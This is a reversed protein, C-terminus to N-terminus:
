EHFLPFIVRLRGLSPNSWNISNTQKIILKKMKDIKKFLNLLIFLIKVKCLFAICSPHMIIWLNNLPTIQDSLILRAMQATVYLSTQKNKTCPLTLRTPRITNLSPCVVLFHLLPWVPFLEWRCRSGLRLTHINPAVYRSNNKQTPPPQIFNCEQALYCVM